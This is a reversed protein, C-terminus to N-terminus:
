VEQLTMFAAPLYEVLDSAILGEEGISESAIDGALGHLYVGLVAAHFLSQHQALLSTIIGTLVDGSGGTAMGPNGTSNFYVNGDPTAIATHAGKLVVYSNVQTAFERLKNIRSFNDASEGVLREFERIHPTLISHESLLELMHRNKALINLADADIVIPVEVNKLLKHVADSTSQAVGLGPGIGIADFRSLDSTIDKVCDVGSTEVMAEPVSTQLVVYGCEPATVTLLGAGARMYARSALISAGMKGHSGTVLLGKGYNGKHSHKARKPVFPDLFERTVYFNQTYQRHIYGQDLGIELLEWTGVYKDNEPILFALKPLQFSLTIDAKVIAENNISSTDCFLGSAIDISIITSGSNNIAKIVSAHLGKVSRTLGSGFIADIILDFDGFKPVDKISSIETIHIDRSLLDYNIQFDETGGEPKKRIVFASIDYLKDILIRGVALGDGGNNGIGCVIAIRNEEDFIETFRDVFAQAAREMLVISKIREHQITYADTEHIKETNLVKM